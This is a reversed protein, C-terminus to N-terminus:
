TVAAAWSKSYRSQDLISERTIGLSRIERCEKMQSPEDRDVGHFEYDPDVDLMFQRLADVAKKM